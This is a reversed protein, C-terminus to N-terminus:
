DNDDVHIICFTDQWPVDTDGVVTFSGNCNVGLLVVFHPMANARFAVQAAAKIEAGVAGAPVEVDRWRNGYDVTVTVM